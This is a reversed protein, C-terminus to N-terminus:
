QSVQGDVTEPHGLISMRSMWQIDPLFCLVDRESLHRPTVVRSLDYSGWWADVSPGPFGGAGERGIM